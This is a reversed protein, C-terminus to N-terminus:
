TAMVAHNERLGPKHTHTHTHAHTPGGAGKVLLARLRHLTVTCVGVDSVGLGQRIDDLELTDVSDPAM